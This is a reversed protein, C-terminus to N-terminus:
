PAGGFVSRARRAGRMVTRQASYGLSSPRSTVFSLALDGGPQSKFRAVPGPTADTLDNAVFGKDALYEFVSWRLFANAGSKQWAADAAASVTHTVAHGLLVLQSAVVTGGPARAHFLACLGLAALREYYLSFAERPLYVPAGKREGTSAHLDYFAGFDEDVVLELGLGRARDVLRRLNQTTTSWLHELDGLPVVYTYSPVANWGTSTLARVDSFPSRSRLELRGFGRSALNAALASVVETQRAVRQSPYRTDYDRLVFGNYYLLLRPAVFSGLPTSREIYAVGGAITGGRRAVITRPTGGVHGALVDLYDPLSYASGSLSEKVFSEWEARGGVDLDDVEVVRKDPAVIFFRGCRLDCRGARKGKVMSAFLYLGPRPDSWAFVTSRAGVVSKIWSSFTLGRERREYLYARVDLHLLVCRVGARYGEVTQLDLGLAERYSLCTVDVGCDAAFGIYWWPRGNVELLKFVGDRPDRKFEASFTGHFGIEHLFAVVDCRGARGRLARDHGHAHQKRVRRPVHPNKTERVGGATNGRPRPLRRRLLPM